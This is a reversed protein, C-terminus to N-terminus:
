RNSNLAIQCSEPIDTLCQETSLDALCQKYFKDDVNNDAYSCKLMNDLIPECMELDESVSCQAAKNNCVQTVLKQCQQVSVSVCGALSIISIMLVSSLKITKM